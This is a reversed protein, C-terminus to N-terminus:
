QQRIELLLCSLADFHCRKLTTLFRIFSNLYWKLNVRWSYIGNCNWKCCRYMGRRSKKDSSAVVSPAYWDKGVVVEHLRRNELVVLESLVLKWKGMTGSSIHRRVEVSRNNLIFIIMRLKKSNISLCSSSISNKEQGRSRWPIVIVDLAGRIWSWLCSERYSVYSIVFKYAAWLSDLIISVLHTLSFSTSFLKGMIGSVFNWIYSVRSFKSESRPRSAVYLRKRKIM